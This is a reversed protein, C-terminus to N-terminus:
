VYKWSLTGQAKSGIQAEPSGKECRIALDFTRNRPSLPAQCSFCQQVIHIVHTSIMKQVEYACAFLPLFVFLVSFMGRGICAGLCLSQCYPLWLLCWWGFYKLVRVLFFLYTKSICIYFNLFYLLWLKLLVSTFTHSICNHVHLFYRHSLTLFVSTFTLAGGRSPQLRPAVSLGHSGGTASTCAQALRLRHLENSCLKITAWCSSM